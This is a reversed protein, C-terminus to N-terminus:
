TSNPSRGSFYHEAAYDIVFHRAAWGLPFGICVGVALQIVDTLM